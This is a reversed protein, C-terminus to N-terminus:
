DSLPWSFSYNRSALPASRPDSNVVASNPGLSPVHTSCVSVPLTGGACALDPELQEGVVM